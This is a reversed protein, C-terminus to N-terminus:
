NINPLILLLDQSERKDIIFEKQSAYNNKPNYDPNYDLGKSDFDYDIPPMDDIIEELQQGIVEVSFNDIVWQRSKKEMATKEEKDM